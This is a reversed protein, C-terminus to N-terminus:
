LSPRGQHRPRQIREDRRHRLPVDVLTVDPSFRPHQAADRVGVVQLRWSEPVLAQKLGYVGNVRLEEALHQPYTPALSREDFITRSIAANAQFARRLVTPQMMDDGSAIWRHLGYGAAVAAAGVAFARRTYRRSEALVADTHDQREVERDAPENSSSDGKEETFEVRSEPAPERESAAQAGDSELIKEATRDSLSEDPIEDPPLPAIEDSM